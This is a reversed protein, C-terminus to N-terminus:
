AEKGPRGVPLEHVVLVFQCVDSPLMKPLSLQGQRRATVWCLEPHSAHGCPWPSWSGPSGSGWAGAGCSWWRWMGWGPLGEEEADEGQTSSVWLFGRWSGTEVVKSYFSGTVHHGVERHRKNGWCPGSVQQVEPGSKVKREEDAGKQLVAARDEDETGQNNWGLNGAKRKGTVRTQKKWLTEAIHQVWKLEWGTATGELKSVDTFKLLM